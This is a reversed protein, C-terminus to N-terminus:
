YGAGVEQEAKVMPRINRQGSTADESVERRIQNVRFDEYLDYFFGYSIRIAWADSM